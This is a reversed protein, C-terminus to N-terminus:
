STPSKSAPLRRSKFTPPHSSKCARSKRLHRRRLGVGPEYHFYLVPTRRVTELEAPTLSARIAQAMAGDADTGRAGLLRGAYIAELGQDVRWFGAPGLSASKWFLTSLPILVILSLYLLTFGMALGFGPLVSHHKELRM